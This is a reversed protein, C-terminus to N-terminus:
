YGGHYRPLSKVFWGPMGTLGDIAVDASGYTVSVPGMSKSAVGRQASESGKTSQQILWQVGKAITPVYALPVNLFVQATTNTATANASMKIVPVAYVTGELTVTPGNYYVEEIYAGAAIGEGSLQAGTCLYDEIDDVQYLSGVGRSNLNMKIGAYNVVSQVEVYPSGNVTDGMIQWNWRNGTIKKVKSDIIPLMATIAADDADTLTTFQKVQALTIVAM